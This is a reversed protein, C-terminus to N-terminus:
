GIREGCHPAALLASWQCLAKKAGSNPTRMEHTGSSAFAVVWAARHRM